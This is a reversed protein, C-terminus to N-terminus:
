AADFLSRNEITRNRNQTTTIDNEVVYSKIPQALKEEFFSKMETFDIQTNVAINSQAQAALQSANVTSLNTVPLLGQAYAPLSSSYNAVARGFLAEDNEIIAKLLPKYKQTQEAPIIAEGNSVRALISDSTGSGKGQIIGSQIKGDKIVQSNVEGPFLGTRFNPLPASAAIGLQVAGLIGTSIQLPVNPAAKMIAAATNIIINLIAAEKDAKAQQLKIAKEEKLAKDRAEKKKQEYKKAIADKEVYTGREKQEAIDLANLEADLNSQVRAQAIQAAQANAQQMQEVMALAVMQFAEIATDRLIKENAEREKAAQAQQATIKDQAEKDAKVKEDAANKAIDIENKVKESQLAIIENAIQAQKIKDNEFLKAENQKSKIKVDLIDNALKEEAAKSFDGKNKYGEQLIKIEELEGKKLAALQLNLTEEAAQKNLEQQKKFAEEREKQEKELLESNKKAGKERLDIEKQIKDILSRDDSLQPNLTELKAKLEELSAKAINFGSSITKTSTKSADEAVHFINKLNEVSKNFESQKESAKLSASSYEIQKQTAEEYLSALKNLSSSSIDDFKLLGETLQKGQELLPLVDLTEKVEVNQKSDRARNKIKAIEDALKRQADAAKLAADAEDELVPALSEQGKALAIKYIYQENVKSIAEKLQRNNVTESNINSLLEPYRAKLEDILKTREKNGVNLSLIQVETGALSKKEEELKLSLKESSSAAQVFGTALKALGTIAPAIAGGIVEKLDDWANSLQKLSGGSSDAIAQAQGQFKSTLQETISALNEQETKSKDVQIGYQRLAKESGNMGSVIKEFASNLDQGTASAFDLITPTLKEVEEATLGFQLAATQLQQIADDSFISQKQLTASQEILKEFQTQTGGNAGVAVQLKRANLEAEQFAKVSEAGFEIVKETAFLGAFAGGIQKFSETFAGAMRQTFSPNAKTLDNLKGLETSALKANAAVKDFEIDGIGKGAAKMKQLEDKASSVIQRLEKASQAAKGTELNIAFIVEKAM